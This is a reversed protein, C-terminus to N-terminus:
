LIAIPNLPAGASRSVNLPPAAVFFEYRGGAACAEALDELWWIEGLPLGLDVLLTTHISVPPETPQVTIAINDMAIAAIDHDAIWDLCANGLGPAGDKWFESKDALTYFWPVHGTRILLIDGARVQVGQAAATAELDAPGIAQGKPIRDIGLHRAVDLLVGRGVFSNKMADISGRRAGHLSDVTGMWFGNYMVGDYFMHSLGDWQTSGQLPMFIYDDAAGGRPGVFKVAETSRAVFDAGSYGFLHTIGPRSPHVPGNSNLPIACSIVQGTRILGAAAVVAEPTLLNTTGREDLPGWRGWNNRRDNTAGVLKGDADVSYAPAQWSRDSDAAM